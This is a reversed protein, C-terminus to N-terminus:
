ASQGFTFVDDMPRAWFSDFVSWSSENSGGDVDTAITQTFWETSTNDGQRTNVTLVCSLSDVLNALLGTDTTDM